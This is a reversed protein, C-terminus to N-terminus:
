KKQESLSKVKLLESLSRDVSAYADARISDKLAGLINVINQKMAETFAEAALKQFLYEHRPKCGYGNRSLTGNSDVKDDWFEKAHKTVAARLTTPEGVEDGWMDVPIIEKSLLASMEANMFADIKENLNTKFVSEIRSSVQKNISSSLDSEEGYRDAIKNAALEIIEERTINFPNEM